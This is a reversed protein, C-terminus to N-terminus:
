VNNEKIKKKKKEFPFIASPFGWGVTENINKKKRKQNWAMAAITWWKVFSVIPSEAM